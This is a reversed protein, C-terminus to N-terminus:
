REPWVPNLPLTMAAAGLVSLITRHLKDFSVPKILHAAFGVELSQQVEREQDYGTVAIGLTTRGQARLQRMLDTGTGDPLGLDVLMLDFGNRQATELGSTMDGAMQVEYGNSTLLLRLMEACDEDDEVLLIRLLRANGQRIESARHSAVSSLMPDNTMPLRATVTTELEWRYRHSETDLDIRPHGRDIEPSYVEGAHNMTADIDIEVCPKLDRFRIVRGVRGGKPIVFFCLQDLRIDPHAVRFEWQDADVKSLPTAVTSWNNFEGIACVSDAHRFLIQFRSDGRAAAPM